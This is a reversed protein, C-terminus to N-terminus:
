VAERLKASAERYRKIDRVTAAPTARREEPLRVVYGLRRLKTVTYEQTDGPLYITLEKSTSFYVCPVGNVLLLEEPQWPKSLPGTREALRARAAAIEHEPIANM